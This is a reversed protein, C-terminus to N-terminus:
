YNGYWLETVRDAIIETEQTVREADWASLDAGTILEDSSLTVAMKEVVASPTRAGQPRRETDTLMWNGILGGFERYQETDFGEWGEGNRPRIQHPYGILSPLLEDSLAVSRLVHAQSKNVSRLLRLRFEAETPLLDRLRQFQSAWEGDRYARRAARAFQADISGSSFRGTLAGPILIKMTASLNEDPRESISAALLIPRFRALSLSDAIVFARRRTESSEIDASPDIMQIYTPLLAELQSLLVSVGDTGEYSRSVVRYLDRPIVYGHDLTVVHRVFTTLQELAGVVKLQDEIASWRRNTEERASVDSTGVLHSKILETPTLGKGRTNIVEYVRFAAGRDPHKFLAFSLNKTIFETWRGVRLAPNENEFIDKRLEASLYHHASMIASESDAPIAGETESNILTELDRNDGKDTMLIRAVQNETEFDMSFLFDSRLSEAVLRRGLENAILRLENAFITLTVLRQQGDVIERRDSQESLVILGLFYEDGGLAGSLDRWFDAVQQDTSWRYRRQFDPVVLRSEAFFGGASVTSAEVQSDM